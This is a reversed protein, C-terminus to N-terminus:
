GRSRYIGAIGFFIDTKVKHTITGVTVLVMIGAIRHYVIPMLQIKLVNTNEFSHM